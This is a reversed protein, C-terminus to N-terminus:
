RGREEEFMEDGDLGLSQPTTSVGAFWVQEHEGTPRAAAVAANRGTPRQSRDSQETVDPLRLPATLPEPPPEPELLEPSIEVTSRPAPEAVAAVADRTTIL